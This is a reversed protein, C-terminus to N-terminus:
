YCGLLRSVNGALKALVMEAVAILHKRRIVAKIFEVAVEIMQVGLFLRLVDVIRLVRHELFLEAWAADDM